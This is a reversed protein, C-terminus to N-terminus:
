GLTMTPPFYDARLSLCYSFAIAIVGGSVIWGYRCLLIPAKRLLRHSVNGMTKHWSLLGIMIAGCAAAILTFSTSGAISRAVVDYLSSRLCTRLGFLCAELIRSLIRFLSGTIMGSREDGQSSRLIVVVGAIGFFPLCHILFSRLLSKSFSAASLFLSTVRIPIVQV